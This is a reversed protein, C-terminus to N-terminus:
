CARILLLVSNKSGHRLLPAENGMVPNRWFLFNVLVPLDAPEKWPSASWPACTHRKGPAPLLSKRFRVKPVAGAFVIHM